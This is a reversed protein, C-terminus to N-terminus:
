YLANRHGEKMKMVTQFEKYRWPSHYFKEFGERHGSILKEGPKLYGPHFAIEIDKGHKEALKVYHPLLKDIRKETLKGSFMAGMFYTSTLNWKRIEKRNALSLVKLLWQKLIGTVSYTFYLSPNLIYPLIPEETIRLYKVAVGSDRAARLLTKFVLPIMHTHQHSDIYITEKEGMQKKWFGLQNCIERYLQEEVQKRKNSYSLLLLGIFSHKFSGCDSVLLPIDKQESLPFGEVLNIHLSIKADTEALQESFDTIEGNPLVSIKNLIGHSLCQEIRLNSEKSIGYDDACFYIM